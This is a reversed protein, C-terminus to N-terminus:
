LQRRCAMRAIAIRGRENRRHPTSTIRLINCFIMCPLIPPPHTQSTKRTAGGPTSGHFSSKTGVHTPPWQALANRLYRSQRLSMYRRGIAKVTAKFSRSSRFTRRMYRAFHGSCSRKGPEANRIKWCLGYMYPCKAYYALANIIMLTGQVNGRLTMMGHAFCPTGDRRFRIRLDFCRVGAYFQGRITLRQCRAFPIMLYGYWKAPRSFTMSNHTGIITTM